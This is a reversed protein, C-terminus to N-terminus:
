VYRLEERTYEQLIGDDLLVIYYNKETSSGERRKEINKITGVYKTGSVKVRTGVEM